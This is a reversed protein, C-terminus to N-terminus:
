GVEVVIVKVVLMWRKTLKFPKVELQKGYEEFPEYVNAKTEVKM